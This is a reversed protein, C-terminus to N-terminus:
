SEEGVGVADEGEAPVGLGLPFGDPPEAEGDPAGAVVRAGCVLAGACGGAV